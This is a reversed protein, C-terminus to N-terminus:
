RSCFMTRPRRWIQRLRALRAVREAATTEERRLEDLRASKASAQKSRADSEAELESLRLIVSRPQEGTEIARLLRSIAVKNAAIARESEHIEATLRQEEAVPKQEFSALTLEEIHCLVAAEIGPYDFRADNTCGARASYSNCVLYQGWRGKNRLGMPGGCRACRIFGAFLNKYTRGKAGGIGGAREVMRSRAQAALAVNVIPPYYDHLLEGLPQRRGSARTHPQYWGLVADNTLVQRIGSAGWMKGSPSPVGGSNLVRAISHRGMGGASMEYIRKVVAAREPLVLFRRRDKSLKLWSPSMATLKREGILRRKQVWAERLRDAKIRSEEHARSMVTLSIILKTFDGQISKRNYVQRDTLTAITIGANIIGIFLQLADIVQERSLRDLSEVILFSDPAVKGEGVM